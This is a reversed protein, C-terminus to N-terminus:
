VGRGFMGASQQPSLAPGSPPYAGLGPQPRMQYTAAATGFGAATGAAGGWMARDGLASQADAYAQQSQLGAAQAM